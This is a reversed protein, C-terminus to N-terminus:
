AAKGRVVLREFEAATLAQGAAWLDEIVDGLPKGWVTLAGLNAWVVEQMSVPRGVLRAIDEHGHREDNPDPAIRVGDRVTQVDGVAGEWPLPRVGADYLARYCTVCLCAGMLYVWPWDSDSPCDPVASRCCVCPGEDMVGRLWPNDRLRRAEVQSDSQPLPVGARRMKEIIAGLTYAVGKFEVMRSPQPRPITEREAAM